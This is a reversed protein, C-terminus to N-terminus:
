QRATRLARLAIRAISPAGDRFAREREGPRSGHLAVLARLADASTRDYPYRWPVPVAPSDWTILKSSRCAAVAEAGDRPLVPGVLHDNCWVSPARLERAIRAAHRRDATWISAGRVGPRARENELSVAEIAGDVAIVGLLPGDTFSALPELEAASGSLVVPSHFAGPLPDIMVREGCLHQAGRATAEGVIQDLRACRTDSALPGLQTEPAGADGVVLAGAAEVLSATFEDARGREVYVRAPKGHLQGAGACAAWLAGDAAGPVNADALVLMAESAALDLTVGAGRKACASVVAAATRTRGAFFVHAVGDAAALAAGLAGRGHVVRVVGEPFGARVLAAAICEGAQTSRPSPKVIVGNGALLAAATQALPGAFPASSSGIVAVVGLPAHGASARTLPHMARPLAFARASLLARAHAALWQLTDIAALLEFAAIEFAPRGSEASLRECLSDFDDIVAQAARELYRARDGVRLQAWLPMVAAVEGVVGIAQDAETLAVAGLPEHTGPNRAEITDASV